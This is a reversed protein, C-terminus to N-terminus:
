KNRSWLFRPNRYLPVPLMATSVSLKSPTLLIDYLVNGAKSQQSWYADGYSAFLEEGPQIRRKTTVAVRRKEPQPIFECNVLEENLPDNIYRAKIHLCPGADVLLNGSVLMMYSQDTVTKASQMTHYHGTYYCLTEGVASPQHCEPVFFLGLGAGPIISANPYLDSDRIVEQPPLNLNMEIRTLLCRRKLEILDDEEEHFLDSDEPPCTEQSPRVALEYWLELVGLRASLNEFLTANAM